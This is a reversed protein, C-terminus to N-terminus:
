KFLLPKQGKPFTIKGYEVAHYPCVHYCALCMACNQSWRPRGAQITINAMPCVAACKGCGICSDGARFPKPSMCHHEFWPRIVRSKIFAFGGKNLNDDWRGLRNARIEAAIRAVSSEANGIKRRALDPSDVDFGKMLVYTNPMAVGYAGGPRLGRDLLLRRWQSATLGADDGYTILAHHVAHAAHGEPIFTRIFRVLVPPVGWSYVPFAWILPEDSGVTIRQPSLLDPARLLRVEQSLEEGLLRAIHYTNGTGSFVLIM